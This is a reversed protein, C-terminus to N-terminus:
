KEKIVGEPVLVKARLVIADDGFAVCDDCVGANCNINGLLFREVKNDSNHQVEILVGPRNLESYRFSTRKREALEEEMVRDCEVSWAKLEPIDSNEIFENISHATKYLANAEDREPRDEGYRAEWAEIDHKAKFEDFLQDKTFGFEAIVAKDVAENPYPVSETEVNVRWPLNVEIWESM